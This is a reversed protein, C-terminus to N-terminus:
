PLMPDTPPRNITIVTYKKPYPITRAPVKTVTVVKYANIAETDNIAGGTKSDFVYTVGSPTYTYTMVATGLGAYVDTATVTTTSGTVTKDVTVGDEETSFSASKDDATLAEGVPKLAASFRRTYNDTFLGWNTYGPQKAINKPLQQFCQMTAHKIWPKCAYLMKGNSYSVSAGNAGVYTETILSPEPVGDVTISWKETILLNSKTADAMWSTQLSYLTKDLDTTPIPDAQAPTM